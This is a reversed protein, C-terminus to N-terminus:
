SACGQLSATVGGILENIAIQGNGNTDFSGCASIAARGLAINVGVILENVRVSGDGNCDGPCGSPPPTPEAPTSTPTATPGVECIGVVGLGPIDQSGCQTEATCPNSDDCPAGANAAECEGSSPNCTECETHCKSRSECQGTANSCGERTCPDGDDACQMIQRRCTVESVQAPGTLECTGTVCPETPPLGPCPQGFMEPEGICLIVPVGPALEQLTGCGANCSTGVPREGSCVPGSESAVCRGNVFGDGADCSVGFTPIGVCESDSCTDGTTCDRGDDCTQASAIAAFCLLAGVTAIATAQM